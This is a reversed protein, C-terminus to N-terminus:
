KPPAHTPRWFIPSTWCNRCLHRGRTVYIGYNSNSYLSTLRGAYSLRRGDWVRRQYIPRYSLFPSGSLDKPIKTWNTTIHASVSTAHPRVHSSGILLLSLCFTFQHSDIKFTHIIGNDIGSDEMLPVTPIVRNDVRSDDMFPSGLLLISHSLFLPSGM